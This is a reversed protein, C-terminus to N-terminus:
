FKIEILETVKMNSIKIIAKSMQYNKKTSFEKPNM